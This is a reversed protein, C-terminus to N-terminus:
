YSSGYVYPQNVFIHKILKFDISQRKNHYDLVM